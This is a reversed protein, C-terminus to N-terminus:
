SDIDPIDCPPPGPHRRPAPAHRRPPLRTAHRRGRPRDAAPPAHPPATRTILRQAARVRPRRRAQAPCAPRAYTVFRDRPVCGGRRIVAPGPSAIRNVLQRSNRADSCTETDPRLQLNGHRASAALKRTQGCRSRGCLPLRGGFARPHQLGQSAAAHGTRHPAIRGGAVRRGHRRNGSGTGRHGPGLHPFSTSSALLAAHRGLHHPPRPNLSPLPPSITCPQDCGRQYSTM